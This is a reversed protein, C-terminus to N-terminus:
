PIVIGADTNSKTDAVVASVDAATNYNKLTIQLTKDNVNLAKVVTQGVFGSDQNSIAVTVTIPGSSGFASGLALGIVTILVMPMILMFFLSSRDKFTQLLDKKAIFWVIKM